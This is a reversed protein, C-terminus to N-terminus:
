FKEKKMIKLAERRDYVAIENVKRTEFFALKIVEGIKKFSLNLIRSRLIVINKKLSQSKSIM